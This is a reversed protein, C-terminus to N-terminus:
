AIYGVRCRHRKGRPLEKKKNSQANVKFSDTSDSDDSLYWFSLQQRSFLILM